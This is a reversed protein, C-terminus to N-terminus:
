RATVTVWLPSRYRVAVPLAEPLAALAADTNDLQLTATIPLQAVSPDCRLWGVRYRGLEAVVKGLPHDDVVLVGRTWSNEYRSVAGLSDVRGMELQASQGALVTIAGAAAVQPTAAVAGEYVSLRTAL